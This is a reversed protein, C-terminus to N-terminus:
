HVPSTPQDGDKPPTARRQKKRLDELIARLPVLSDPDFNVVYETAMPFNSVGKGAPFFRIEAYPVGQNGANNARERQAAQELVRKRQAKEPNYRDPLFSAVTGTDDEWFTTEEFGPIKRARREAEAYADIEDQSARPCAASM